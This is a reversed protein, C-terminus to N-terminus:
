LGKGRELPPSRSGSIPPTEVKEGNAIERGGIEASRMLAFGCHWPLTTKYTNVVYFRETKRNVCFSQLM